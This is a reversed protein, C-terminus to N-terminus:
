NKSAKLAVKQWEDPGYKMAKKNLFSILDTDNKCEDFIENIKRILRDKEGFFSKKM